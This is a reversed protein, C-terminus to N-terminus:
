GDRKHINDDKNQIKIKIGLAFPHSAATTLLSMYLTKDIM